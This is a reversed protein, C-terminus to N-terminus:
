FRDVLKGLKAYARLIDPALRLEAMRGDHVNRRKTVIGMKVMRELRRRLTAPAGLDCLLLQKATMFKGAEQAAGIECVIDYDELSELFLLHTRQYSRIANLKEFIKM